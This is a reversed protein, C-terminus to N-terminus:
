LMFLLILSILSFRLFIANNYFSYGTLVNVPVNQGFITTEKKEFQVYITYTENKKFTYEEVKDKCNNDGIGQCVKFPNSLDKISYFVLYNFEKLYKFIVKQDNKLNSVVYKVPPREKKDSGDPEEEDDKIEEMIPIMKGYKESLDINISKNLPNIWITGKEKGNGTINFYVYGDISYDLIQAQGPPNLDTTIGFSGFTNIQWYLKCNQVETAIYILLDGNDASIPVIFQNNNKDYKTDEGFNIKPINDPIEKLGEPEKSAINVLIFFTILIKIM